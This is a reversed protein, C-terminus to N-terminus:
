GETSVECSWGGLVRLLAPAGGPLPSASRSGPPPIVSDRARRLELGEIDALRALARTIAALASIREPSAVHNAPARRLLEPKDRLTQEAWDRADEKLMRQGTADGHVWFGFELDALVAARQLLPSEERPLEFGDLDLPRGAALASALREHLEARARPPVGVLLEGALQRSVRRSGLRQPWSWTRLARLAQRTPIVPDRLLWRGVIFDALSRIRHGENRRECLERALREQGDRWMVTSGRGGGTGFCRRELPVDILGLQM